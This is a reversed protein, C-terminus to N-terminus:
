WALSLVRVASSLAQYCGLARSVVIVARSHYVSLYTLWSNVGVRCRLGSM